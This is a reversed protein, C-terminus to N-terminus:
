EPPAPRSRTGEEAEPAPPSPEAPAELDAPPPAGELVKATTKGEQDMFGALWGKRWENRDICGDNNADLRQLLTHVNSPLEGRALLYHMLESPEITGSKDTDIQDFVCDAVLFEKPTRPAVALPSGGACCHGIRLLIVTGFTFGFFLYYTLLKAEEQSDDGSSSESLQRELVSSLAELM